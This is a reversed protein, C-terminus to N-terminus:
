KSSPNLIKKAKKSGNEAAFQLDKKFGRKGARKKAIGRNAFLEIKDLLSFSPRMM